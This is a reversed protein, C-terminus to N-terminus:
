RRSAPSGTAAGFPRTRLERDARALLQEDRDDPGNGRRDIGLPRTAPTFSRGATDSSSAQPFLAASSVATQADAQIIRAAAAAVDFNGSATLSALRTLEPLGFVQPWNPPLPPVARAAEAHDFRQPLAIALDPRSEDLTCAGLLCACLALAPIVPFPGGACSRDRTTTGAGVAFRSM